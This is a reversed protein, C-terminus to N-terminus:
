HVQISATDGILKIVEGVLNFAGVRVLEYMGAGSMQDAVIVVLLPFPGHSLSFLQLPIDSFIFLLFTFSRFSPNPDM